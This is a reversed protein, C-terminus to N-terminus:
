KLPEYNQLKRVLKNVYDTSEMKRLCKKNMLEVCGNESFLYVMGESRMGVVDDLVLYTTFDRFDKVIDGPKIEKEKEYEKVRMYIEYPPLDLVMAKNMNPFIENFERSSLGGDKDIFVIKRVVELLEENTM